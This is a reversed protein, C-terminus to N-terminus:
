KAGSLEYMKRLVGSLEKRVSEDWESWATGDQHWGDFVQCANTCPSIMKELEERLGKMEERSAELEREASEARNCQDHYLQKEASDMKFYDSASVTSTGNAICCFFETRWPEPLQKRAWDEVKGYHRAIYDWTSQRREESREDGKRNIDATAEQWLKNFGDRQRIAEDRERELSQARGCADLEAHIRNDLEKRIPAVIHEAYLDLLETITLQRGDKMFVVAQGTESVRVMMQTNDQMWEAAGAPSPQAAKWESPSEACLCQHWEGRSIALGCGKGCWPCIASCPEPTAPPTPKMPATKVAESHPIDVVQGDGVIQDTRKGSSLSFSTNEKKIRM